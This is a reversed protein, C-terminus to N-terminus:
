IYDFELYRSIMLYNQLTKTLQEFHIEQLRQQSSSRETIFPLSQGKLYSLTV